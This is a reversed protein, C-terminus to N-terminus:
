RATAHLSLGLPLTALPRGAASNMLATNHCPPELAPKTQSFFTHQFNSLTSTQSPTLLLLFITSINYTLPSGNTDSTAIDDCTQASVRAHRREFTMEVGNFSM